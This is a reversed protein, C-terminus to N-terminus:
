VVFHPGPPVALQRSIAYTSISDQKEAQKNTSYEVWFHYYTTPVLGTTLSGPSVTTITYEYDEIWQTSKTVDDQIDPDFSVEEDTILHPRRVITIIDSNTITLGSGTTEVTTMSIGNCIRGDVITDLVWEGNKYVSVPDQDAWRVDTLAFIPDTSAYNSMACLFREHIIGYRVWDTPTFPVSISLDGEGISTITIIENTESNLLKFIQVDDFIYGEDVYCPEAYGPIVTIDHALYKVSAAIGGPMTGTSGLVVVDGEVFTSGNVKITNDITSVEFVDYLKRFRKFTTKRPTGTTKDNQPISGNSADAIVQQDWESPSITSSVWKYVAYRGIDLMDGWKYLRDNTEPYIVTDYYPKYLQLSADVWVINKEASNWPRQSVDGPILTVSYRAPDTADFYDINHAAMVPHYGLAPHWLPIDQLITRSKKDVLKAPSIRNKAVNLGFILMVDVFASTNFGVIESNVRTFGDNSLAGEIFSTNAYNGFESVIVTVQGTGATDFSFLQV